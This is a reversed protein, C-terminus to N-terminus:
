GARGGAAGAGASVGCCSYHSRYENPTVLVWLRGYVELSLGYESDFKLVRFYLGSNGSRNPLM